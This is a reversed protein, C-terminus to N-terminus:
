ELVEYLNTERTGTTPYLMDVGAIPSKEKKVVDDQRKNSTKIRQVGRGQNARAGRGTHRINTSMNNQLKIIKNTLTTSIFLLWM